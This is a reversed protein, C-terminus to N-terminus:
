GMVGLLDYLSSSSFDTFLLPLIMVFITWLWCTIWAGIIKKLINTASPVNQIDPLLTDILHICCNPMWTFLDPSNISATALSKHSSVIEFYESFLVFGEMADYILKEKEKLSFAENSFNPSPFSSHIVFKETFYLLSLTYVRWLWGSTSM